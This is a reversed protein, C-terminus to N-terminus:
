ERKRRLLSRIPKDLDVTPILEYSGPEITHTVNITGGGTPTPPGPPPPGPPPVPGASAVAWVAETGIHNAGYKIWMYGKDGWVEGWSNRLLWAGKADDWGVLVVDHNIDSSRGSFVTGARYNMFANDAAVACGVSKYTAIANKIDQITAVSQSQDPSCFGWDPIAYLATGIKFQCPGVEATYNGYARQTPLGTAKAATLVTTNDDGDCGGTRLCDLVYQQSLYNATTGDNRMAGAAYMATTVVDVGSFAWCSGCQGQNQVPGVVGLTRSDWTKATAKPLRKILAGNRQAASQHLAALREKPPSKRGTSFKKDESAKPKPVPLPPVPQLLLPASLISGLLVMFFSRM